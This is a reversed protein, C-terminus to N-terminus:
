SRLFSKYYKSLLKNKEFVKMLIIGAVVGVLGQLTNAAINVFAAGFGYLIGEFLFYGAVMVFEAVLGGVSRAVLPKTRSKLHKYIIFAVVVMLGKIIFTVPAYIAYGSLVDALASGIAAACFGYGVPLLFASLLVMCDGLNAYGHLPTPVKIIMTAVCTLTGMMASLVLMKTKKM